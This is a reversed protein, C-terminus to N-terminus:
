SQSPTFSVTCNCIFVTPVFTHPSLFILIVSNKTTPMNSTIAVYM